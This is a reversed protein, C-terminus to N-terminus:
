EDAASGLPAGQEKGILSRVWVGRRVLALGIAAKGLDLCSVLAYVPLLPLATLHVLCWAAPVYFVCTFVSDFLVTIYTRGGCRLTFYSANTLAHVPLLCACVRMLQTAAAMVADTTNYLHPVWPAVAFLLAGAAACASCSLAMLKPCDARALENKGAGLENGLIIGVCNGMTFLVINFLNLVVSNINLAAVATLGRLSYCQILLTQGLSWFLENGMLPLGKVVIDRVLARPIAFSRFLGAAFPYREPRGHTFGVILAAEAWRSIVTAIAAGRVGLVPFGCKGFILLWNLGLNLLLALASAKMPLRTDGAVRLTGTYANTVAFPLLGWFMVGLYDRGYGLTANLDGDGGVSHLFAGILADQWAYLVAGAALTVAVVLLLNFRLTHRVGAWDERGRFQAGFIGAGSVGGFLCLNYVFLLQNVISVGSMQETGIQGVMLNDLLSVFTSIANQALLPLALTLVLRYFARDGVLKKM